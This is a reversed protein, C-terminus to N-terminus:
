KAEKEYYHLFVEELEPESVTVDTVPLRCLTMLLPKIEGQYLFTVADKSKIVSKAEIEDPLESVGALSVKKTKSKSINEMSDEAVLRGDRIIAAKTCNHQVESLVHSSFFVTAGEKQREHLLEFFEKQMLPDLGGTPEDMIYLKPKHQMACVIGVKKRNGLSLQDIRKKTDLKFRECLRKAEAGCDKRHLKASYEILEGVKMGSYFAAEAALYGIDALYEWSRSLPLGLVKAGGSTPYILGLLTRIFTSKGAGNPGIFGFFDGEEVKLSLNEIGKIKGYYKTLNDAEIIPM